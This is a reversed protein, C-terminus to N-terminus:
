ARQLIMEVRPNDGARITAPQRALATGSGLEAERGVLLTFSGTPALAAAFAGRGDVLLM